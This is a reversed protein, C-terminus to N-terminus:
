CSWRDMFGMAEDVSPQRGNLSAVENPTGILSGEASSGNDGLIYIIITNDLEGLEDM